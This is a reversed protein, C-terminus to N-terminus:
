EMWDSRDVKRWKVKSQLTSKKRKMEDIEKMNKNWDNIRLRLTDKWLREIWEYEEREIEKNRWIDKIWIMWMQYWNWIM